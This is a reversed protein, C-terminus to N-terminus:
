HHPPLEVALHLRDAFPQPYILGITRLVSSQKGAHFIGPAAPLSISPRRELQPLVHASEACDPRCQYKLLRSLDNGAASAVQRAMEHFM